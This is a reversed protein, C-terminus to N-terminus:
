FFIVFSSLFLLNTPGVYFFVFRSIKNLIFCKKKFYVFVFKSMMFVISRIIQYTM